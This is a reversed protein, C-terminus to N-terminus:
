LAKAFQVGCLTFLTNRFNCTSEDAKTANLWPLLSAWFVIPIMVSASTVPPISPASAPTGRHTFSAHATTIAAPVDTPPHFTMFVIPLPTVFISGADPNAACVEEARTMSSIVNRPAGTLVVCTIVVEIMPVPVARLTLATFHPTAPLMKVAHITVSGAVITSPPIVSNMIPNNIHSIPPM